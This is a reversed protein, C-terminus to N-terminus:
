IYDCVSVYIIYNFIHFCMIYHFIIMGIFGDQYALAPFSQRRAAARILTEINVIKFKLKTEVKCKLTKEMKWPIKTEIKWKIKNKM